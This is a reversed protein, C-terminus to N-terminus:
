ISPLYICLKFSKYNTVKKIISMFHQFHTQFTTFSSLFQFDSVIWSETGCVFFHEM